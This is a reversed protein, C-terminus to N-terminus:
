RDIRRKQITRDSYDSEYDLNKNCAWLNIRLDHNMKSQVSPPEGSVLIDLVRNRKRAGKRAPAAGNVKIDQLLKSMIQDYPTM